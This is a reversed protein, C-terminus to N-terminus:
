AGGITFLEMQEWERPALQRHCDCLCHSAHAPEVIRVASHNGFEPYYVVQADPGTGITLYGPTRHVGHEYARGSQHGCRDHEGAECFVSARCDTNWLRNDLLWAGWDAASTM